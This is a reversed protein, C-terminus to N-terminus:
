LKHLKVKKVFYSALRWEGDVQMMVVEEQCVADLCELQNLFTAYRGEPANGAASHFRGHAMLRHYGVPVLKRIAAGQRVFADRGVIEKFAPAGDDWVEGFRNVDVKELVRMEAMFAADKERDTLVIPDGLSGTSVNVRCGVACLVLMAVLSIVGWRGVRKMKNM